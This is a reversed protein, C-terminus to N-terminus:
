VQKKQASVQRLYWQRTIIWMFLDTETRGPFEKLVGQKQIIKVLPLYVNDYWSAVAEEYPVERKRQVGLYWRHANIQELLRSFQGPVSSTIKTQQRLQALNTRKFFAAREQQLIMEDLWTAKEFALILKKVPLQPNEEAFKVGAEERAIEDLEEAPLEDGSVEERYAERVYAQYEMVWLYLDSESFKPFSQTQGQQRFVEVVPTYVHDYWSVVAEAYPIERKSNEGLYWRHVDIHELLRECQGPIRSELNAGPRLVDLKTKMLFEAYEGKAVLDDATIDPSLTVPIDIETVYADVFLQGRDRAVSVRHNGDKVFYIDGIKFLEVPPLNVMGYHAMDISIWRERTKKQKPLFARDFDRYRGLSGVIKEVPVQEMGVYHQGQIPLKDRVEDFPLLENNKRTIWNRIKRWFSKNLARDFDHAAQLRNEVTSVEKEFV